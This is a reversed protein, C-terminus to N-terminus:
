MSLTQQVLVRRVKRGKLFQSTLSPQVRPALTQSLRVGARLHHPRQALLSRRLQALQVRLVRLVRLGKPVRTVKLDQLVRLVRIAKLDPRGKRGWTEKHAKRAKLDKPVRQVKRAQLGRLARHGQEVKLDLIAKLDLPDQQV